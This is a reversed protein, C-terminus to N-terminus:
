WQATLGVLFPATGTMASVYDLSWPIIDPQPNDFTSKNLRLSWGPQQQDIWPNSGTFFGTLDALGQRTLGIRIQRTLLM